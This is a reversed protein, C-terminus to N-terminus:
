DKTSDAKKGGKIRVSKSGTGGAGSGGSKVPPANETGYQHSHDSAPKSASRAKMKGGPNSRSM